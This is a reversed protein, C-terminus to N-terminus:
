EIKFSQLSVPTTGIFDATWAEMEGPSFETVVFVVTEGAPVSVGSLAPCFGNTDDNNVLCNTNPNDPDFSGSYATLFGDGDGCQIALNVTATSAGTNTLTITDYRVGVGPGSLASCNGDLTRNYTSDDADLAGSIAAPPTGGPYAVPYDESATIHAPAAATTTRPTDPQKASALSACASTALIAFAFANMRM